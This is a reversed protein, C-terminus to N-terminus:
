LGRGWAIEASQLSVVNDFFEDLPYKEKQDDSTRRRENKRQLAILDSEASLAITATEAGDEIEMTDAKGSFFRFPDSIVTNADDLTAFDMTVSRGQYDEDLAVAILSSPIGSLLFKLGRAEINRTETVSTIELLFGSGTYNNGDYVFNGVGNWFRLTQSDFEATVLIIPKLSSSTIESRFGSTINRSM